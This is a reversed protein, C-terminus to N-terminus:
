RSYIRQDTMRIKFRSGEGPESEVVLKAGHLEAIRNCLALGLGFGERKRSADGQYFPQMIKYLESKEMGSGNDAVEMGYANMTLAIETAGAKCANDFLNILLVMLLDPEGMWKVDRFATKGHLATEKAGNHRQKKLAKWGAACEDTKWDSGDPNADWEDMKRYSVTFSVGAREAKPRLTQEVKEGFEMIDIPFIEIEQHEVSILQTLKGSLRELRRSESDVFEVAERRQDETLPAHKLAYAYGTIATVPTRMEHALAALLMKQEEIKGEIEAIYVEITEQMQDFSNRLSGIEDTKPSLARNKQLIRNEPKRNDGMGDQTAYRKSIANAEMEFQQLPYLCKKLYFYVSVASFTLLMCGTGVCFLGLRKVQTMSDTINRVVSVYYPQRAPEGNYRNYASGVICYYQKDWYLIVGKAHDYADKRSGEDQLTKGYQELVGKADIGSNNFLDEKEGQLVFESDESSTLAIESFVYKDFSARTRESMDDDSIRKESTFQRVVSKEEGLTYALAEKEQMQHNTYIVIQCFLCLIVGFLMVMGITMKTRLKM